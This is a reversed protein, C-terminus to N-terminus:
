RGGGDCGFAHGIPSLDAAMAPVNAARASGVESAPEADGLGDGRWISGSGTATVNVRPLAIAIEPAATLGFM